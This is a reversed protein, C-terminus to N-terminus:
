LLLLAIVVLFALLIAFEAMGSGANRMVGGQRAVRRPRARASRRSRGALQHGAGQGAPRPPPRLARAEGLLHGAVPAGRRAEGAAAGVDLGRDAGTPLIQEGTATTVRRAQVRPLSLLRGDHSVFTRNRAEFRTIEKALGYRRCSRAVDVAWPRHAQVADILKDDFLDLRESTDTTANVIEAILAEYEDREEPSWLARDIAHKSM